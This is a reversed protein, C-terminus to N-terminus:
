KIIKNIKTMVSPKNKSVNLIDDLLSSRTNEKITNIQGDDIEDKVEAINVEIEASKDNEKIVEKPKIEKNEISRVEEQVNELKVDIRPPTELKIEGEWTVLNYKGDGIVELKAPYIKSTDLFKSKVMETLPLVVIKVKNKELLEGKFSYSINENHIRFWFELNESDIGKTSVDFLLIKNKSGISIM